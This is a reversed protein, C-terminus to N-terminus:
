PRLYEPPVVFRLELNLQATIECMRDLIQTLGDATRENVHFLIDNAGPWLAYLWMRACCGMTSPM